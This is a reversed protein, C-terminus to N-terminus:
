ANQMYLELYYKISHAKLGEGKIKLNAKNYFVERESLKNEIYKLLETETLSDVLPRKTNSQEVRDKLSKPHMNIYISIGNKSILDMNDFYCPTGGGVAIIHKKLEFTKHLERKEVERFYDEGFVEFIEEINKGEANVIQTDLDLFDWALLNALKRGYFSKGSAMFGIIYINKNSM